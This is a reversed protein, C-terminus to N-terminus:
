KKNDVIGRLEEFKYLEDIMSEELKKREIWSLKTEVDYEGLLGDLLLYISQNFERSDTYNRINLEIGIKDSDNSYRFYIDDYSLRFDGLKVSDYELPLRQRFAIVKWKDIKPAKDVLKIVSPFSEKLGAASIVLEKIGNDHIPSFEFTLNSDIKNLQNTLNDFLSDDINDSYYDNQHKVFWEWFLEKNDKKNLFGLIMILGIITILLFGIITKIKM